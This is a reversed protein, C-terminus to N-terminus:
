VEEGSAEEDGMAIVEPEHPRRRHGERIFHFTFSQIFFSHCRLSCNINLFFIQKHHCSQIDCNASIYQNQFIKGHLLHTCLGRLTSLLISFQSALFGGSGPLISQGPQAPKISLQIRKIVLQRTLKNQRISLCGVRYMLRKHLKIGPWDIYSILSCTQKSKVFPKLSSVKLCTVTLM